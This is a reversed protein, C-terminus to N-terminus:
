TAVGQLIDAIESERVWRGGRINDGDVGGLSAIEHLKARLRAIEELYEPGCFKVGETIVVPIPQLDYPGIKSEDDIGNSFFLHIHGTTDGIWVVPRKAKRTTSVIEGVEGGSLFKQGVEIPLKIEAM